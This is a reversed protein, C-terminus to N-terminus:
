AALAVAARRETVQVADYAPPQDSTFGFLSSRDSPLLPEDLWYAGIVPWVPNSRLNAEDKVPRDIEDGFRSELDNIGRIRADQAWNWSRWSGRPALRKGEVARPLRYEVPIAEADRRALTETFRADGVLLVKEPAHGFEEDGAGILREKAKTITFPRFTYPKPALPHPARQRYPTTSVGQRAPEFPLPLAVGQKNDNRAR